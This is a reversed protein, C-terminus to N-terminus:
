LRTGNRPLVRGELAANKVKFIDKYIGRGNHCFSVETLRKSLNGRAENWGQSKKSGGM